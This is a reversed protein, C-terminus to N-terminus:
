LNSNCVRCTQCLRLNAKHAAAILLAGLVVVPMEIKEFWSRVALILGAGLVFLLLPRLQRHRRIYSPFLSATGGALAIGLLLVESTENAVLGLGILPLLPMSACHLACIIATAIGMRDLKEIRVSTSLLEM